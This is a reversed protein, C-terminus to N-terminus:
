AADQRRAFAWLALCGVAGVCGFLILAFPLGLSGGLGGVVVSGLGLGGFALAGWLSMIRARFEKNVMQLLSAQGGVVTMTSAAGSVFSLALMVYISTAFAMIFTAVGAIIGGVFLSSLQQGRASRRTALIAGMVIAGGGAASTLYGLTQATGGTVMTGNIAPMLEVISRSFFGSFTSAVLTMVIAPHRAAERVGGGLRAVFSEGSKPRPEHETRLFFVAIFFVSYFLAGALFSLGIGGVAIIWAAIAPGLVRSSNFVTSNFGVASPIAAETVLITPMVLRAPQWVAILLGTAGAAIMYPVVSTVQMFALVSLSLYVCLNAIQCFMIIKRPDRSEAFVGMFPSLIGPLALILFATLGTLTPSETLEWVVYGLTLRMMWLGTNGVASGFSWQVYLPHRLANSSSTDFSFM